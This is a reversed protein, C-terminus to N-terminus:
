GEGPGETGGTYHEGEPKAGHLVEVKYGGKSQFYLVLILYGVAMTAPVAATWRLAMQGGYIGATEVPKRDLQEDPTLEQKEKIKDELAGVKQGDLGAIAPFFLFSKEHSARYRAYTDPAIEKLKASAYYDQKYGIGPGGFLGASLMGCAGMAGMTLAGGRPFREGVIGLMTPWLFTKGLGYTTAAAFAIVVSSGLEISGLWTLGAAGLLASVFLLGVPNIREVIPGAFFRLVFMLGSTYIFLLIANGPVVANMINTIWSDTGLEVYGVLAHLLLLLLLIPSAFEALMTAFSVGAARAESIPFKEKLIVFGYYFAPPLFFAVTIEWRLHSVMADRGCFFYALIGGVILGGPWGAHLINLYHTKQKPYLTAVLPNIVSECVGNALSFMFAGWYLCKFAASQAAELQEPATGNLSNFVPTAACTVVASLVHLLFALVMLPKYGVRDAVLSCAIITIGFGVLGGGTIDGLRQKTFGFETAWDALIAGRIAFGIGAAILTFFSALFLQRNNNM